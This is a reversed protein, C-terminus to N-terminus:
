WGSIAHPSGSGSDKARERLLVKSGPRYMPTHYCNLNGFIQVHASINPNIIYPRLLKLTIVSQAFLKAGDISLPSKILQSYVQLLIKESPKLQVSM